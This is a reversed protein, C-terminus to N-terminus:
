SHFFRIIYGALITIWAVIAAATLTIAIGIKIKEANRKSQEKAAEARKVDEANKLRQIEALIQRGQDSDIPVLHPQQGFFVSYKLYEDKPLKTLPLDFDLEVVMGRHIHTGGGSNNLVNKNGQSFDTTAIYKMRTARVGLSDLEAV